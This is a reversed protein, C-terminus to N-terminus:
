ENEGRKQQVMLFFIVIVNFVKWNQQHRSFGCGWGYICVDTVGVFRECRPTSMSM